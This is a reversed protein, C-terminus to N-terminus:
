LVAHSTKSSMGFLLTKRLLINITNHPSKSSSLGLKQRVLINRIASDLSAPRLAIAFLRRSDPTTRFDPLDVITLM